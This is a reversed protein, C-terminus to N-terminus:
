SEAPSCTDTVVGAVAAAGDPRAIKTLRPSQEHPPVASIQDEVARAAAPGADGALPCAALPGPRASSKRTGKTRVRGGPIRSSALTLFESFGRSPTMTECHVTTVAWFGVPARSKTTGVGTGSTEAHSRPLAPVPLETSHRVATRRRERDGECGQPRRVASLTPRLTTWSRCQAELV